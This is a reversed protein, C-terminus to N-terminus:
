FSFYANLHTVDTFSSKDELSPSASKILRQSSKLTKFHHDSCIIINMIVVWKEVTKVEQINLIVLKKQIRKYDM